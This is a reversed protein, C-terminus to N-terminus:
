ERTNPTARDRGDTVDRRGEPLEATHQARVIDKSSPLSSSVRVHGVLTEQGISALM